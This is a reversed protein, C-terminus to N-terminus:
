KISIFDAMIGIAARAMRRYDDREHETLETPSCDWPATNRWAKMPMGVVEKYESPMCVYHRYIAEAVRRNLQRENSWIKKQSRVGQHM